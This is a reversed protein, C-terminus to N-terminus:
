SYFVDWTAADAIEAPSFWSPSEGGVLIIKMNKSASGKLVIQYGGKYAWDKVSLTFSPRIQTLLMYPPSFREHRYEQPFNPDQPDSGSVIVSGDLLLTAESHYLRAINTSALETMRSGFPLAPDYVVPAYNPEQANAFGASGM